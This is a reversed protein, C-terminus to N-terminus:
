AGAAARRFRAPPLMPFRARARAAVQNFACVLPPVRLSHHAGYAGATVLPCVRCQDACWCDRCSGYASHRPTESAFAHSVAPDHAIASIRQALGADPPGVRLGEAARRIIPPLPREEVYTRTALLCTSLNGDVDLTLGRGLPADCSWPSSRRRPLQPPMFRLCEVPVQGTRVYHRRSVALVRGFQEDLEPFGGGPDAGADMAPNIRITGARAGILYSVSDSLFRVTEPVLTVTLTVHSRVYAPSHRRLRRLVAELADFSGASRHEQADRAGDLSIQLQFRHRELWATTQRDLLLGNTLLRYEVTQSPRRCREVYDVAQTLLPQALLPEGGTFGLRVHDDPSALMLDIARRVAPWPATAAPRGTVCCYSCRQNCRSTTVIALQSLSPRDAQVCTM